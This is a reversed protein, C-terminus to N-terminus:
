RGVAEDARHWGDGLGRGPSRVGVTREGAGVAGEDLLGSREQVAGVAVLSRGIQRDIMHELDVPQDLQRVLKQDAADEPRLAPKM